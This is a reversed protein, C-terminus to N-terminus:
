DIIKDLALVLLVIAEPIRFAQRASLTPL